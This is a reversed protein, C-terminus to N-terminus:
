RVFGRCLRPSVFPQCDEDGANEGGIPVDEFASKKNKGFGSKREGSACPECEGEAPRVPMEMGMLGEEDCEQSDSRPGDAARPDDANSDRKENRQKSQKEDAGPWEMEEAAKGNNGNNQENSDSILKSKCVIRRSFRKERRGSLPPPGVTIRVLEEAADGSTSVELERAEGIPGVEEGVVSLEGDAMEVIEGAGEGGPEVIRVVGERAVEDASDEGKEGQGAEDAVEQESMLEGGGEVEKKDKIKSEIKEPGEVHGAEPCRNKRNHEHQDGVGNAVKAGQRKGAAIIGSEKGQQQREVCGYQEDLEAVILAPDIVNGVGQGGSDGGNYFMRIGRGRGDDRNRSVALSEDEGPVERLDGSALIDHEKRRARDFGDLVKQDAHGFFDLFFVSALEKNDAVEGFGVIRPKERLEGVHM